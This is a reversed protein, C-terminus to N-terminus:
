FRFYIRNKWKENAGLVSKLNGDPYYEYTRETREGPNAVLLRGALDSVNNVSGGAGTDVSQAGGFPRYTLNEMLTVTNGDYTSYIADVRCACDNRVFDITRGSPYTITNVRGGPSYSRSLLYDIGNVTTNKKVLRGREDYGFGTSGSQDTVGTLRGRAYPGQDYTYSIDPDDPFDVGTLRDLIDYAYQVTIGKADVKNLLRGAEDYAFSGSGSDPSVTYVQRGMDDYQFTTVAGNADDVATRNGHSDHDYRTIPIGAGPEPEPQRAEVLRDLADYFYL